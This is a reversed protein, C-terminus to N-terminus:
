TVTCYAVAEYFYDRVIIKYEGKKSFYIRTYWEGNDSYVERIKENGSFLTIMGMGTGHIKVPIGAHIDEPLSVSLMKQEPTFKGKYTDHLEKISDHSSKVANIATSIGTITDIVGM